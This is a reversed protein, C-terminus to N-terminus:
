GTFSVHASVFMIDTVDDNPDLVLLLYYTYDTNNIVPSTITNDSIDGYDDTWNATVNAMTVLAGAHDRRRLFLNMASLADNRRGYLTLQTVTVGSPFFIPSEFVQSNLTVRNRLVSNENFWDHTDYRPLFSSAAVSIPSMLARAEADTYKVHHASPDGAHAAGVTNLYLLTVADQDLTPDVVNILKHTDLNINVDAKGDAGFIDNISARAEADTYKAHHAAAIAAHTAILAPANQHATPIAAHTAIQANAIITVEADTYRAHHAAAIAAHAAILGPADQHATAILAHAALEATVGLL